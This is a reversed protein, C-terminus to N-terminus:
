EAIRDYRESRYVLGGRPDSVALVEVQGWDVDEDNSNMLAALVESVLRPSSSAIFDVNDGAGNRIAEDAIDKEAVLATYTIMM